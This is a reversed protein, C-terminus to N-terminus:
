MSFFDQLDMTDDLTIIKSMMSRMEEPVIDEYQEFNKLFEAVLRAARFEYEGVDEASERPSLARPAVADGPCCRPIEFQFVPDTEFEVRALEGSIAARILARSTAISIRKGRHSPEGSWGTNVLWCTINHKVIKELLLRGYVYSPQALMTDGFAISFLVHPVFEGTGTQTITSTYASMFAYVAQEPTLRAIPPLVGMADCTMLFLNRPHGFVEGRNAGPIHSIPYVARTNQALSSDNLDIRRNNQNITVNELITGFKRTCEYILPQDEKAMNLLKAYGGGELNFIGEETWGHAHDGILKRQEDMALTTKGTEERGLFIAVDGDHGVNASCRMCFVSEPMLYNAITFVAHKIDGGYGAGGILVLKRSLNVIMFKSSHTGDAEPLTRFGPIHIITFAPEFGKLKEDDKIQVFMNRAFLSHWATETLIRIPIGYDPANGVMCDQVFAEKDDMYSLLRHFLNDFHAESLANKEESWIVRSDSMDDKVIFKDEPSMPFQQGTRIVIPGLHAMQGERNNVIKEYLMPTPLNRYIRRLHKQGYYELNIRETM